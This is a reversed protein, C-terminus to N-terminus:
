PNPKKIYYYTGAFRSHAYGKVEDKEDVMYKYSNDIVIDGKVTNLNNETQFKCAEQYTVQVFEEKNIKYNKM